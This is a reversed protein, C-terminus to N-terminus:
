EGVILGVFLVLVLGQRVLRSVLAQIGGYRGREGRTVADSWPLLPRSSPAVLRLQPGPSRKKLKLHRSLPGPTHGGTVGTSELRLSNIM